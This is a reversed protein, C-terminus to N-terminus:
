TYPRSSTSPPAVPMSVSPIGAAGRYASESGGELGSGSSGGDSSSSSSSLAGGLSEPRGACAGGDLAASIRDFAVLPAETPSWRPALSFFRRTLAGFFGAQVDSSSAVRRSRYAARPAMSPQCWMMAPKRAGREARSTRRRAVLSPRVPLAAPRARRVRTLAPRGLRGSRAVDLRRRARLGLQWRRVILRLILILDNTELVILRPRRRGDRTRTPELPGSGGGRDVRGLIGIGVRARRPLAGFRGSRRRHVLAAVDDVVRVVVVSHALHRLGRARPRRCHCLMTPPAVRPM